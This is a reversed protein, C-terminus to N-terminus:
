LVSVVDWFESSFGGGGGKKKLAIYMSIICLHVILTCVMIRLQVGEGGGGGRKKLAVYM